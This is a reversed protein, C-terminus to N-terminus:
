SRAHSPLHLPARKWDLKTYPTQFPIIIRGSSRIKASSVHDARKFSAKSTTTQNHRIGRRKTEQLRKRAFEDRELWCALWCIDHPKRAKRTGPQRHHAHRPALEERDAAVHRHANWPVCRFATYIVSIEVHGVICSSCVYYSLSRGSLIRRQRRSSLPASSKVVQHRGRFRVPMIKHALPMWKRGLLFYRCIPSDPRCIGLSVTQERWSCNDAVM